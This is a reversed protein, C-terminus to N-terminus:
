GKCRKVLDYGEVEFRQEPDKTFEGNLYFDYTDIDFTKKPVEDAAYLQVERLEGEEFQHKLNSANGLYLRLDSPLMPFKSFIDADIGASDKAILCTEVV